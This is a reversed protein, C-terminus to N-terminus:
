HGSWELKFACLHIHETDFNKITNEFYIKMPLTQSFDNEEKEVKQAMIPAFSKTGLIVGFQALIQLKAYVLLRLSLKCVCCFYRFALYLLM